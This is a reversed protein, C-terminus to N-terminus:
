GPFPIPPPGPPPGHRGFRAHGAWPPMPPKGSLIAKATYQDGSKEGMVGVTDGQSIDGIAAQKGDKIVKTDSDVAYTQDYGDESHLTISDSSVATVDGRQNTVTLFSGDSKKIVMEGHVPEGLFGPGPGPGGHHDWAPAQTSTSTGASRHKSGTAGFAVASGALVAIALVIWLGPRRLARVTFGKVDKEM